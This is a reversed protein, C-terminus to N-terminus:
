VAVFSGRPVVGYAGGRLWRRVYDVDGPSDVYCRNVREPRLLHCVEICGGSRRASGVRVGSSACVPLWRGTSRMLEDTADAPRFMPVLCEGVPRTVGYWCMYGILRSEDVVFDGTTAPPWSVSGSSGCAPCDWWRSLALGWGAEIAGAPLVAGCVPCCLLVDRDSM